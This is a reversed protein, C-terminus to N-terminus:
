WFFYFWAPALVTVLLLLARVAFSYRRATLGIVLYAGLLMVLLPLAM